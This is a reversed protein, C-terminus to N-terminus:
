HRIIKRGRGKRRRKGPIGKTGKRAENTINPTQIADGRVWERRQPPGGRVDGAQKRDYDNNNNNDDDDNNNNNNIYDIDGQWDPPPPPIPRAKGNNDMVVGKSRLPTQAGGPGVARRHKTNNVVTRKGKTVAVKPAHRGEDYLQPPLPKLGRAEEEETVTRHGRGGRSVPNRSGTPANPNIFPEYNVPKKVMGKKGTVLKPKSEPDPLPKIGFEDRTNNNAADEGRDPLAGGAPNPNGKDPIFGSTKRVPTNVGPTPKVMNDGAGALGGAKGPPVVEKTKNETIVNVNSPVPQQSQLQQQQQQALAPQAGMDGHADTQVDKVMDEPLDNKFKGLTKALEDPSMNKFKNALSGESPGLKQGMMNAAAQRRRDQDADSVGTNAFSPNEGCHPCVWVGKDENLGMEAHCVPCPMVMNRMMSVYSAKNVDSTYQKAEADPAAPQVTDEAQGMADQLIDDLETRVPDQGQGEAFQTYMNAYQETKAEDPGLGQSDDVTNTLIPEQVTPMPQLPFNGDDDELVAAIEQEARGALFSEMDDTSAHRYSGFKAKFEDVLGNAKITNWLDNRKDKGSRGM